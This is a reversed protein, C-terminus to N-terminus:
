IKIIILLNKIKNKYKQLNRTTVVRLLFPEDAVVFAAPVVLLIAVLLEVFVVLSLQLQLMVWQDVLVMTSM